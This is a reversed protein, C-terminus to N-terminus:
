WGQKGRLPVFVVGISERMSFSPGERQWVQLIQRRYDGVPIVLLGTASLQHLLAQPVAPAGASVLIGDFCLNGPWGLSGDGILYSINHYGLKDNIIKARRALEPIREMSYVRATLRSLIASQYGSGTGIELITEGEQLNLLSTMLAVIYPQSITQQNGISLPYDDYAQHRLNAPVYAHRPVHLMAQLTAPHNIGRALIQNEVM